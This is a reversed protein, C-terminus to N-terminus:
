TLCLHSSLPALDWWKISFNLSTQYQNGPRRLIVWPSLASLFLYDVLVLVKGSDSILKAQVPLSHM